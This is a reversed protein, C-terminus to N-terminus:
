SCFSVPFQKTSCNRFSLDSTLEDLNGLGAFFDDSLMIDPIVFENDDSEGMTQEHDDDTDRREEKIHQQLGLEEEVPSNLPSTIPSLIPSGNSSKTTNTDSINAHSKLTGFKHRNIGALSNRRTPQAHNHEATYTIIYMGSNTCSQEVQRRALCGKSSSCRYYSRPYPSGKIPKQGYKRWAWLDSSLCDATVHLVVKKQQNKRTKPKPGRAVTPSPASTSVLPSGFFPNMRDEEEKIVQIPEDNISMTQPSLTTSTGSFTPCFPKYLQELENGVITTTQFLDPFSFLLQQDFEENEFDLFPIFCSGDINTTTSSTTTFQDNTSDSVGSVVAQLGWEEM